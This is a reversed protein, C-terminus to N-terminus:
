GRKERPILVPAVQVENSHEDRFMFLQETCSSVYAAIEARLSEATWVGPQWVDCPVDWRNPASLLSCLGHAVHSGM